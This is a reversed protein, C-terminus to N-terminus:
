VVHLHRHPCFPTKVFRYSQLDREVHGLLEQRQKMSQINTKTKNFEAMYDQLIERHRQLTHNFAGSSSVCGAMQQNTDSLRSILGDLDVCMKEFNDSLCGWMEFCQVGGRMYESLSTVRYARKLVCFIAWVKVM